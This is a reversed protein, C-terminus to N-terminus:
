LNDALAHFRTRNRGQHKARYMAMDALRVLEAIDDSDAPFLCIGISVGLQLMQGDVTYPRALAAHMKRAVRAADAPATIDDLLVLFEDGGFRAVTDTARTCASLRTAAEVLIADGARHGLSDNVTKFDDLDLMAVAGVHRGRRAREVAGELREQFLRRNPLGTLDDYHAKRFIQREAAKRETIDEVISWILQRGTLDTVMMGRLLVPFRSGDKRFNEKEFPGYRGVAALQELYQSDQPHHEEPTIDFYTMGLLEDRSFGSPALIADNVDIFAGTAFDTLAIGVPCLEFLGRLLSEKYRLGSEAALEDTIDTVSCVVRRPAGPTDLLPAANVSLIRRTGDPWEIGHRVDFVPARNRMVQAFPLEEFPYHGGDVATVRWAPHDFRRGVATPAAIGLVREAATNAFSLEGNADIVVVASLSTAMIQDLFDREAALKSELEKRVTVDRVLAILTPEGPTASLDGNADKRAVSLEFWGGGKFGELRYHKGTSIGTLLAEDIAAHCIRAADTPLTEAITKGVLEEAPVLLRTPDAVHCAIFRGERDVEFLLDPIARLTAELQRKAQLTAVEQQKRETIEIRLGIRGGDPTAQEIVQVWRGDSLEQETCSYPARHEALRQALYLEERGVAAAFQGRALGHRVIDEFHNGPVMVPALVPFIERFRQNCLVLRDDPDFLVFGDGLAEMAISLQAGVAQSARGLRTLRDDVVDPTASPDREALHKNVWDSTQKL